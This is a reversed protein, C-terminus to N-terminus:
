FDVGAGIRWWARSAGAGGFAVALDTRIFGRESVYFKSGGSLFPRVDVVTRREPPPFGPPPASTFPVHEIRERESGIQLGAAVFPHVWTNEFFQYSASLNVAHLRFRHERAFYVPPGSPSPTTATESFVRGESTLTVGLETKLHPTWYRGVDATAAFTDYWHNWRDAVAEKNGGLWGVTVGADWRKPDSPALTITQASVGGAFLVAALSVVAALRTV